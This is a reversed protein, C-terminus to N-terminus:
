EMKSGMKEQQTNNQHDPEQRLIDKPICQIHSNFPSDFSAITEKTDPLKQLVERLSSLSCM